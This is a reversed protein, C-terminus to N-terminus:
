RKKKSKKKDTKVAQYTSVSPTKAPVASPSAVKEVPAAPKALAEQVEIAKVFIAMNGTVTVVTEVLRYGKKGWKDLCAEMSVPSNDIPEVAYDYTIM